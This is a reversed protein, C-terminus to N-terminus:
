PRRKGKGSMRSAQIKLARTRRLFILLPAFIMIVFFILPLVGLDHILGAAISLAASQIYIMLLAIVLTMSLVLKRVLVFQQRVIEPANRASNYFKTSFGMSFLFSSIVLTMAPVIFLILKSGYQDPQGALDFHTPIQRPMGPYLLITTIILGAIFFISIGITLKEILTFPIELNLVERKQTRKQM